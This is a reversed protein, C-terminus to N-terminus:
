HAQPSAGAQSQMAQRRIEMMEEQTQKAQSILKETMPDENHMAVLVAKVLSQRAQQVETDQLVEQQAKQLNMNTDRYEQILENRKQPDINKDQLSAELTKLRAIEKEPTHGKAKMKSIMLDHFSQQQKQLEPNKDLTKKQIQVLQEQLKQLEARKQMFKQLQRVEM